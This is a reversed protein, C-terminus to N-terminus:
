IGRGKKEVYNKEVVAGNGQYLFGSCGMEFVDPSDIFM